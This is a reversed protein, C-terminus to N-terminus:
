IAAGAKVGQTQHLVSVCGDGALIALTFVGGAQEPHGGGGGVPAGGGFAGWGPAGAGAVGAARASAIISCYTTDLGWDDTILLYRIVLDAESIKYLTEPAKQLKLRYGAYIFIFPSGSIM